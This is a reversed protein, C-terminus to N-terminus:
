KTVKRGKIAYILPVLQGQEKRCYGKDTVYQLHEFCEYPSYPFENVEEISIGAKILASLVEALSHPWTVMTSKEDGCNETYTTEEEIDPEPSPFYSYGSLLDNVPHFEILHLEGGEKLAKAIGSAWLALDPLWCLVGYSTYVLDYTNSNKEAFSYVDDNIFNAEINIKKALAKASDIAQSSLDVGTVKAELRAWSLSDLGFHCQLHLLAKNKVDGLQALEIPNLSSKGKVFADVDYFKSDLHIKTNKDWSKKNIDLYDM